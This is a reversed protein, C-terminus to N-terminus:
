ASKQINMKWGHHPRGNRVQPRSLLKAPKYERAMQKGIACERCLSLGRKYTYNFVDGKMLDQYDENRAMWYRKACASGTLMLNGPQNPCSVMDEQNKVLWEKVALQSEGM